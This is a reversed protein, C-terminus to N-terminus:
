AEKNITSSDFYLTYEIEHPTSMATTDASVAMKWDFGSVPIEFTSNGETNVPLYKEGDVMMYDYNPSSFIITAYAKGGEIKLKAPSEVSTRGSGGELTVDVTYNGDELGLSEVTAITGEELADQPLSDACFVLVRDYWKEKKASYAACNIGKDLAEVPVIFTYEGQENEVFPIFSEETATVAEEGTGMFLKLYGTGSMTMTAKMEGDEVQLSCSVIKFMPSSSKVTIDYVGSKIDKGYVPTMNDDVVDIADAMEEKSAVQDKAEEKTEEQQPQETVESQVEEQEAQVNSDNVSVNGVTEQKGCGTCVAWTITTVLLIVQLKKM